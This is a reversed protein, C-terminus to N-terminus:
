ELNLKLNKNLFLLMDLNSSSLCSRKASLLNGAASFMRESPVSTGAVCLYKQALSILTSFQIQNVKWWQSPDANLDVPTLRYRRLQEKILQVNLQVENEPIDITNSVLTGFMMEMASRKKRPVPDSTSTSTSPDENQAPNSGGDASETSETEIPICNNDDTREQDARRQKDIEASAGIVIRAFVADQDPKSLWSLSKFRPDLASSEELFGVSNDEGSTYRSQLYFVIAMKCENVVPLTRRRPVHQGDDDDPEANDDAPIETLQKLITEKMPLIMSATPYESSSLMKTATKM